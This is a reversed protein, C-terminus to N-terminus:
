GYRLAPFLLITASPTFPASCVRIKAETDALAALRAQELAALRADELAKLRAQEEKLITEPNAIFTRCQSRSCADHRPKKRPWSAVGSMM